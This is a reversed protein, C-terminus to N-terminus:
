PPAHWHDHWAGMRSSGYGHCWFESNRPHQYGTYSPPIMKFTCNTPTLLSQQVSLLELFPSSTYRQNIALNLGEEASKALTQLNPGRLIDCPSIFPSECGGVDWGLSLPGIKCPITDVACVNHLTLPSASAICWGVCVLCLPQAAVLYCLKEVRRPEM